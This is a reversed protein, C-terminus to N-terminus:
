GGATTPRFLSNLESTKATSQYRTDRRSEPFLITKDATKWSSRPYFIVQKRSQLLDPVIKDDPTSHDPQGAQM